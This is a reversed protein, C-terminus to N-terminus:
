GDKGVVLSLEGLEKGVVLSLEGLNQLCDDCHSLISM